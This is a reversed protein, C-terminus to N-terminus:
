NALAAASVLQKLTADGNALKEILLPQLKEPPTSQQLDVLADYPGFNLSAGEEGAFATSFGLEQALNAGLGAVLMGCGVSELFARRNSAAMLNSRPLSHPPLHWWRM